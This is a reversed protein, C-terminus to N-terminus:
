LLARASITCRASAVLAQRRRALVPSEQQLATMALRAPATAARRRALLRPRLAAFARRQQNRAAAPSIELATGIDNFSMDFVYRLVLVQRQGVPLIGILRLFEEDTLANLYHEPEEPPWRDVSRHLVAPDEAEEPRARTMLNLLHNRAIRFLWVRFPIGRLEYRPLARLVRLFVEHVADEAAHHDRLSIVMYGYLPALYLRYLDDLADTDGGQVRRILEAAAADTAAADVRRVFQVLGPHEAVLGRLEAPPEAARQGARRERTRREPRSGNGGAPLAILAAAEQRLGRRARREGRRRDAVVTVDTLGDAVARVKASGEPSDDALLCLLPAM